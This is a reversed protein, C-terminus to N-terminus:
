VYDGCIEIHAVIADVTHKISVINTGMVNVARNEYWHAVMLKVCQQFLLDDAIGVFIDVDSADTGVRRKTKSVKGLLYNEAATVQAAILSDEDDGTVRLYLKVDALSVSM